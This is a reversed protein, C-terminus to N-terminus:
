KVEVMYAYKRPSDSLKKQFLHVLGRDFLERAKVAVKSNGAIEEGFDGVHYVIRTGKPNIRMKVANELVRAADKNGTLDIM